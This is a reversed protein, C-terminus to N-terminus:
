IGGAVQVPHNKLMREVGKKFPGLKGDRTIVGEPFIVIMAGEDLAESTIVFAMEAWDESEKATCIPITKCAEFMSDLPWIKWHEYDM